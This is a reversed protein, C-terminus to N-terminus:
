QQACMEFTNQNQQNKSRMLCMLHLSNGDIIKADTLQDAVRAFQAFVASSISTRKPTSVGSSRFFM